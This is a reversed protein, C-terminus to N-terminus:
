RGSIASEWGSWELLANKTSLYLSGWPALALGTYSLLGPLNWQQLTEGEFSVLIMTSAFEDVQPNDAVILLGQDGIVCCHSIESDDLDGRLRDEVPRLGSGTVAQWGTIGSESWETVRLSSEDLIVVRGDGARLLRWWNWATRSAARMPRHGGGGAPQSLGTSLDLVQLPDDDAELTDHVLWRDGDLWLVGSPWSDEPWGYDPDDDAFPFLGQSRDFLVARDGAMVIRSRLSGRPHPAVSGTEMFGPWGTGADSGAPSLLLGSGDNYGLYINTTGSVVGPRNFRFGGPGSGEQPEIGRERLYAPVDDIRAELQGPLGAIGARPDDVTAPTEPSPLASNEATTFRIVRDTGDVGWATSLGTWIIRIVPLDLTFDGVVRGDSDYRRVRRMSGDLLVARDDSGMTLAISYGPFGLLRGDPRREPRDPWGPWSEEVLPSGDPAFLTVRNEQVLGSIVNGNRFRGVHVANMEIAALGIEDLREPLETRGYVLSDGEPAYWIARPSDPGRWAANVLWGGGSWQLSPTALDHTPISETRLYEGEPTFWSVEFIHAVGIRDGDTVLAYPFRGLEGPGEGIGGFSGLISGQEPDLIAVRALRGDLIYLRDGLMLLDRTFILVPDTSTAPEQYVVEGTLNVIEIDREGSACGPLALCFAATLITKM